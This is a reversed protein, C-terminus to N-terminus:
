SNNGPMKSTLHEMQRRWDLEEVFQRSDRWNQRVKVFLELFVKHGLLREIHRRAETGITKLMSGQRGIIIGKQGEREVFITAAIRTLKEREEFQEIVVTAAYPVEENTQVLVQERIYEAALFREPQDTVQDEPFYQPGDPLAKVVEALLDELGVGKAASIPLVADFAHRQQWVEIMPLLQEKEILDVKNLLLFTKTKTRQALELVFKDGTGFKQTVDVILLLVDCGELADYVEQMMRKNLASEAKHVGPTDILIIQGGPRRGKKKVNVIGQIRNRTTQAKHTVIALKEGVLANLLTSKGANPRGLITVFGSRFAM